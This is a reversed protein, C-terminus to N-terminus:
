ANLTAAWRTNGDHRHPHFPSLLDRSKDRLAERAELNEVVAAIEQAEM